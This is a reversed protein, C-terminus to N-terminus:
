NIPFNLYTLKNKKFQGSPPRIACVFFGRV